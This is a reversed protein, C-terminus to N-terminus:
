TIFFKGHFNLSQTSTLPPNNSWYNNDPVTPMWPPAIHSAATQLVTYTSSQEVPALQTSAAPQMTVAPVASIVPYLMGSILDGM